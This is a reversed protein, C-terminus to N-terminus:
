HRRSGKDEKVEPGKCVSTERGCVDEDGWLMCLCVHVCVSECLSM